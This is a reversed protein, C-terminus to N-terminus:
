NKFEEKAMCADFTEGEPNIGFHTLKEFRGYPCQIQFMKMAM